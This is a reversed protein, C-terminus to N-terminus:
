ADATAGSPTATANRPLALYTGFGAVLACALAMYWGANAYTSYSVGVAGSSQSGGDWFGVNGSPWTFIALIPTLLFLLTALAGLAPALVPRETWVLTALTAAVVAAIGVLWLIGSLVVGEALGSGDNFPAANEGGGGTFGNYSVSGHGTWWPVFLTVLALLGVAGLTVTARLKPDM